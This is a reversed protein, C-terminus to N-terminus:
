YISNNTFFYGLFIRVTFFRNKAIKMKKMKLLTCNKLSRNEAKNSNISYFSANDCFIGRRDENEHSRSFKKKIKRKHKCKGQSFYGWIKHYIHVFLTLKQLLVSNVTSKLNKKITNMTYTDVNKLFINKQLIV